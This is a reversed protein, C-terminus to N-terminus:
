NAVTVIRQYSGDPSSVGNVEFSTLTADPDNMYKLLPTRAKEIEAANDGLSLDIKSVGPKFTLRVEDKDDCLQPEPKPIHPGETISMADLEYQFFRMPNSTGRAIVFSDM